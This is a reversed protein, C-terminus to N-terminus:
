AKSKQRRFLGLASLGIMMLALSAPASVETSPLQIISENFSSSAIRTSFLEQQQEDFFSVNYIDRNVCCDTRGFIEISILEEVSALVITLTDGTRPNGEHFIQGLGYNGATNGDIANAPLSLASWADPASAVAGLSSLAVDNNATNRAVVEGVQLWTNIANSVTITKVGMLGAHTNCAFGLLISLIALVKFSKM